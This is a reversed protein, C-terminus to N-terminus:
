GNVGRNVPAIRQAYVKAEQLSFRPSDILAKIFVTHWDNTGLRYRYSEYEHRLIINLSEESWNEAGYLLHSLVHNTEKYLRRFLKVVGVQTSIKEALTASGIVQENISFKWSMRHTVPSSHVEIVFFPLDQLEHDYYPHVFASAEKARKKNNCVGCIPVLNLRCVSLSEYKSRPMQHDLQSPPQIGCMPCIDVSKFLQTRIYSLRHGEQTKDYLGYLVKRASKGLADNQQESITGGQRDYTRYLRNLLIGDADALKGDSEAIIRTVDNLAEDILPKELIWM